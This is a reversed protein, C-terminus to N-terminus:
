DGFMPGDVDGKNSYGRREWFGLYTSDDSLEVRTIWKIWKYGWKDEAVLQFPFGNEPPLPIGNIRDAIILDRELIFALPLSTTYGDAAHFIVTNAEAAPSVQEFLIALPIGEWLAKVTWGEVCYITVLKQVRSLTQVQSLTLATPHFVLGDIVLAYMTPDIGQVGKISNERFDGISGLREGQYERIEVEQVIGKEAAVVTFTTAFVTAVLLSFATQLVLGFLRSM